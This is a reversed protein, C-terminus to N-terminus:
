PRMKKQSSEGEAELEDVAFRKRQRPIEIPIGPIEIPTGRSRSHSSRAESVRRREAQLVDYLQENFGVRRLGFGQVTLAGVQYLQEIAKSVVPPILSPKRITRKLLEALIEPKFSRLQEFTLHTNSQVCEFIGIYRWAAGELYFVDRQEGETVSFPKVWGESLQTHRPALVVCHTLEGSEPWVIEHVNWHWPKRHLCLDLVMKPAHFPMKGAHPEISKYDRPGTYAGPADYDALFRVPDLNKNRLSVIEEELEQRKDLQVLADNLQTTAEALAAKHEKKADKARRYKERLSELDASLTEIIEDKEKCFAESEVRNTELQELLDRKVEEDFPMPKSEAIRVLFENRAKLVQIEDLADKLASDKRDESGSAVPTARNQQAEALQARVAKLEQSLLKVMEKALDPNDSMLKDM